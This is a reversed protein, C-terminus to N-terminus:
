LLPRLFMYLSRSKFKKLIMGGTREVMKLLNILKSDCRLVKVIKEKPISTRQETYNEGKLDLKSTVDLLSCEKYDENLILAASIFGNFIYQGVM